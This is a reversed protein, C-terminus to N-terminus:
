IGDRHTVKGNMMTLNVATDGIDQPDTAFLDNELVVLDARKGVEISGVQDDIGITYAAGLTYAHIAVDLPLKAEEGGLPPVHERGPLQRTVAAEIGALPRYESIYGAAPWDSGLTVRGGLDHIAKIPFADAVREAGLRETTVESLLPDMTMWAGTSDYGIDLEAFRTRDDSHVMTAHTIYHRRDRPPNAEIAMEMADLMKRVALDGFCHCTVDIGLADARAVADNVIEYPIIPQAELDPKDTYGDVYLANWKDDGGDMNVKLYVARFLESDYKDKLRAIEPVPDIEPNNWYYSGQIRIPLEDSEELAVFIDFYEDEPIGGLGLDQMTTLGAALFRPMWDMAGKAVYDTNIEVISGLTQLQAPVEVIWGTPEGEADREFYSFGPAPDPTDKSIGAMELARSNVWGGHGDVTWLVVPRESEIEDLMAANPWNNNWPNFRVGYGLIVDLDPNADIHDRLTSLIEDVSDSQLDVGQMILGGAVIPHAHVDVFGPMLMRGELDIVETNAGAFARAGDADGVFVIDKGRVAVAEAWERNTDLTYVRGNTFVFDAADPAAVETAPQEGSCASLSLIFFLILTRKMM